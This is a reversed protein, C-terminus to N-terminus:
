HGSFSRYFSLLIIAEIALGVAGILAALWAFGKGPLLCSEQPKSPNYFVQVTNGKQFPRLYEEAEERSQIAKRGGFNITNSTHARGKVTYTYEVRPKYRMGNKSLKEKIHADAILGQTSPWSVSAREKLMARLGGVFLLLFILVFPIAFLLPLLLPLQQMLADFDM